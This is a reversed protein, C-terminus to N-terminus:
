VPGLARSRQRAGVTACGRPRRRAHGAAARCHRPRLAAVLPGRAPAADPAVLGAMARTHAAWLRHFHLGPLRCRGARQRVVSEAWPLHRHAATCGMAAGAGRREAGAPALGSRAAGGARHRDPWGHQHGGLRDGTRTAGGPAGSDAGRSRGRLHAVPLGPSRGALRQPRARGCRGCIVRCRPQLHQALADFDRGQRSLGHVCIVVHRNNADGAPWDWYAMRRPAGTSAAPEGVTLFRLTPESM